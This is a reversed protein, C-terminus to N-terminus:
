DPTAQLATTRESGTGSWVHGMLEGQGTFFVYPRLQTNLLTIEIGANAEEGDDVADEGGFVSLGGAFMGFSLLRMRTDDVDVFVDVTSRKLLGSQIELMNSFSSNASKDQSLPRSFASSLGGQGLVNYNAYKADKLIKHLIRTTSANSQMNSMTHALSSMTLVLTESLHENQVGKKFLNVMDKVIPGSPHTALSLSILYREPLELSGNFKLTSMAAKHAPLTQAAAAIDLLQPLIKANKKDKLVAKITELDSERMKRLLRTFAIAAGQTGQNKPSLTNHFNIVLDKLSKCTICEKADPATALQETVLTKRLQNGISKVAEAAVKGTYKKTAVKRNKSKTIDRAGM